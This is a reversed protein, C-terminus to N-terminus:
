GVGRCTGTENRLQGTFTFQRFIIGKVAAWVGILLKFISVGRGLKQPKQGGQFSPSGGLTAGGKEM